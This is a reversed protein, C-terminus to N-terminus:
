GIRPFRVSASIKEVKWSFNTKEFSDANSGRCFIGGVLTSLLFTSRYFHRVSFIDFSFIYFSLFDFILFASTYFRRFYFQRFMYIRHCYQHKFNSFRFMYSLVSSLQFLSSVIRWIIYYISRPIVRMVDICLLILVRWSRYLLPKIM